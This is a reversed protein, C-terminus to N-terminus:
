QDYVINWKVAEVNERGININDNPFTCPTSKMRIPHSHASPHPHPSPTHHELIHEQAQTYM